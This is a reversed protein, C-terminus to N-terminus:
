HFGFDYLWLGQREGRNVIQTRMFSHNSLSTWWPICSHIRWPVSVPLQSLSADDQFPGLFTYWVPCCPGTMLACLYSRCAALISASASPWWPSLSSLVAFPTSVALRRHTPCPRPSRSRWYYQILAPHSQSRYFTLKNVFHFILLFSAALHLNVMSLTLLLGSDLRCLPYDHWASPEGARKVSQCPQM